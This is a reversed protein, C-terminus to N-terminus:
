LFSYRSLATWFLKKSYPTNRGKEFIKDGHLVIENYLGSIKKQENKDYGNIVGQVDATKQCKLEKELVLLIWEESINVLSHYFGSGNEEVVFFTDGSSKIEEKYGEKSIKPYPEDGDLEM